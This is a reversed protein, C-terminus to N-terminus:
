CRLYQCHPLVAEDGVSICGDRPHLMEASFLKAFCFWEECLFVVRKCKFTVPPLDTFLFYHRLEHYLPLSGTKYHDGSSQLHCSSVSDWSMWRTPSWSCPKRKRVVPWWIDANNWLLVIGPVNVQCHSATMTCPFHTQVLSSICDQPVPCNLIGKWKQTLLESGVRAAM